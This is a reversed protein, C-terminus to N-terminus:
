LFVSSIINSQANALNHARLNPTYNTIKVLQQVINCIMESVQGSGSLAHSETSPSVSFSRAIDKKTPM